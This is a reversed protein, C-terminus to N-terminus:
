KRTLQPLPRTEAAKIQTVLLEIEQLDKTFDAYFKTKAEAIEKKWLEVDHLVNAQTQIDRHQYAEIAVALMSEALVITYWDGIIRGAAAVYQASGSSGQLEVLHRAANIPLSGLFQQDEASHVTGRTPDENWHRAIDALRNTAWRAVGEFQWDSIRTPKLCQNTPDSASGNCRWLQFADDGAANKPIGDRLRQYTLTRPLAKVTTDQSGAGRETDDPARIIITGVVNMVLEMNSLAGASFTFKDGAGVLKLANWTVNGLNPSNPDVGSPDYNSINVGPRSWEEIAAQFTDNFVGGLTLKSKARTLRENEIGSTADNILGQAWKCSDIEVKTLADLKDQLWRLNDACGDCMSALALYFAYGIANAGIQRVIQRFQETNIFTFSGGYLDIGGCGGRLNPPTWNVVNFNNLPARLRFTGLDVGMRRQSDYISPEAGTAMLMSDLGDRLDAQAPSIALLTLAIAASLRTSTM